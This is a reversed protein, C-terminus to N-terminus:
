ETKGDDSEDKNEEKATETIVAGAVTVQSPHTIGRRNCEAIDAAVRDLHEEWDPGILEEFTLLGNRFKSAIATQEKASDVERMKPWAWKICHAWNAPLAATLLGKRQAWMVFRRAVWDLLNNELYKQRDEFAPQALIQEGRFATYSTEAHLTAYIRSLGFAAASRGSLWNIFEPMNPNPRKTDLLELKVGEPMEDWYAGAETIHDLRIEEVPEGDDLDGGVSAASPDESNFGTTPLGPMEDDPMGAGANSIIQGVTQANIKAAQIEFKTTDEVDLLPGLTPAARAIGRGQRPRWVERMMIWPTDEPMSFPERGLVFVNNSDRFIPMGRQAASVVVGVFVGNANYIRGQM